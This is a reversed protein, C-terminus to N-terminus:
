ASKGEPFNLCAFEGFHEKAATDYALAAELPTPFKGLYIEKGGISIRATSNLTHTRVGRYGTKSKRLGANAANQARTAPRLNVKRNDLSDRNAHDIIEIPFGMIYRHMLISTCRYKEATVNTLAYYNGASNKNVFWRYKSIKEIDERDIKVGRQGHKKSDIVVVAHDDKLVIQNPVIKLKKPHMISNVRRM